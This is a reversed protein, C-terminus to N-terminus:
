RCINCGSCKDLEGRFRQEVLRSLRERLPELPIRRVVDNVFAHQLLLRAESEAIGRQRMYFLAREDLQGVTSGHNCKVDDAYIELMPQTYMRADASVCVNANVQESETHQAGERVLVRGAFAGESQGDLVYKYLMDSRCSAARHDVLINNDVHQQKDAVVCGYLTAEAGEGALVIDTQNRTIGNHLVVSGTTVRSRAQQEVYLHSFCTNDTHTEELGYLEIRSGEGAVVEVIQTSLFRCRDMAHDCFLFSAEAGAEAVILIRRNAMMDVDSRLLNVLQVTRPMVTGAPLYVALGDQALMTNLAAVPDSEARALSGYRAALAPVESLLTRLSGIRVGEPLPSVPLARDYFADNVLFYLQTSLNPVNCRFAEYPNVPFSVRRLNVGYDPAFAAELDTYKYREVRRTPFGNRRLCDAAADRLANMPACAHRDIEDRHASFLELYQLESAM